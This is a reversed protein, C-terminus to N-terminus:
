LKISNCKNEKALQAAINQWVMKIRPVSKDPYFHILAVSKDPYFHDQMNFSIKSILFFDWFCLQKPSKLTDIAKINFSGALPLHRM